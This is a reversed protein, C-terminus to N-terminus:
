LKRGARFTFYDHLLGCTFIHKDKATSGEASLEGALVSIQLYATRCLTTFESVPSTTFNGSNISNMVEKGFDKVTTTKSTVKDYDKKVLSAYCPHETTTGAEVAVSLKNSGKGFIKNFPLGDKTLSKVGDESGTGYNIKAQCKSCEYEKGYIEIIKM